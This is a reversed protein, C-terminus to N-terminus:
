MFSFFSASTEFLSMDNVSIFVVVCLASFLVSRSSPGVFSLINFRCFNPNAVFRPFMLVVFLFTPLSLALTRWGTVSRTIVGQGCHSVVAVTRFLQSVPWWRKKNKKPIGAWRGLNALWMMMQLTFSLAHTLLTYILPQVGNIYVALCACVCVFLRSYSTADHVERGDERFTKYTNDMTTVIQDFMQRLKAQAAQRHVAQNWCLWRCTVALSVILHVRPLPPTRAVSLVAAFNLVAPKLPRQSLGIVSASHTSNVSGGHWMGSFCLLIHSILMYRPGVFTSQFWIVM